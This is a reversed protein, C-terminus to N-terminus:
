EGLARYNQLIGIGDRTLSGLYLKGNAEQISSIQSFKGEPDQFNYRVQGETNLGLVGAHTAPAPQLWHPLRAIMKRMGPRDSLQDILPNRPSIMALWFIGDEGRSIGDPFAPLNEVFIDVQGRKEGKLYYRLTRYSSTENVLVFSTDAATAVGNAFYLSDLLTTTEKTAPDYVLLRGRPQHELIDLKYDEIAWGDSADSFYVKGDPGVELDDVFGFPRDGVGTSLTSLEGEPSLRLLGKVADAIYLNGEQDFDLGLPRGGTQALEEPSSAGPSYRLIRSDIAAGYLKGDQDVAVDECAPCSPHKVEVAQLLTNAAYAGTYQPNDPSQWSEPTLAIPWLLLYLIFLSLFTGILYLIKKM